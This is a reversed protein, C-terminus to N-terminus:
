AHSKTTRLFRRPFMSGLAANIPIICGESDACAVASLTLAMPAISCRSRSGSGGEGCAYVCVSLATLSPRFGQPKQLSKLLICPSAHPQRVWPRAKSPNVFLHLVCCARM